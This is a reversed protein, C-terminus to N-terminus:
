AFNEIKYDLQNLKTEWKKLLTEKGKEGKYKSVRTRANNRQRVLDAINEKEESVVNLKEGSEYFYDLQKYIDPIVDRMIYKIEALSKRRDLKSQTILTNKLYVAKAFYKKRKKDLDQLDKPFDNVSYKLNKHQTHITFEDASVENQKLTELVIENPKLAELINELEERLKKRTFSNEGKQFLKKLTQNSGQQLFIDVGITYDCGTNLWDEILAIAM